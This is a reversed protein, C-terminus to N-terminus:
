GKITRPDQAKWKLCLNKCRVYRWLLYCWCTILGISLIAVLTFIFPIYWDASSYTNVSTYVITLGKKKDFPTTTPPPTNTRIVSIDILVTGTRPKSVTNNYLNDDTIHVVLHYQPQFDMEGELAFPNKVILKPSNSGRTPDLGFHNARNGSVIEFRMASDISDRDQCSLRFSNINTGTPINDLVTARYTYPTCDPAEDNEEKINVIVMTSASKPNVPDCDVAEITLKYQPISEYDPQRILKIMGSVPDLWFIEAPNVDGRVIRYTLCNSPYDKDTATVKGVNHNEGATEPVAFTYNKKDFAPQFDNVPTVEVIITATVTHSPKADDFVSLTMEYTSGVARNRPDECDLDRTTQIINGSGPVQEFLMGAGVPGGHAEYHLPDPPKDKDHCRLSAVVTNNAITEKSIYGEEQVVEEPDRM